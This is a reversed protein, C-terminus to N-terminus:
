GERNQARASLVIESNTSVSTSSSLQQINKRIEGCLFM